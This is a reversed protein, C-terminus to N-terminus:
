CRGFYLDLILCTGDIKSDSLFLATDRGVEFAMERDQEFVWRASEFIQDLYEPGLKQLYSISPGLKDRMDDEKEGLRNLVYFHLEDLNKKGVSRRVRSPYTSSFCSSPRQTCRGGTICSYLSRMNRYELSHTLSIRRERADCHSFPM